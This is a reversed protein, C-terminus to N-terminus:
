AAVMTRLGRSAAIEPAKHFRGDKM